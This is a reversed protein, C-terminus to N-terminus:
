YQSSLAALPYSPKEIEQDPDRAIERSLQSGLGRRTARKGPLRDQCMKAPKDAPFPRRLRPRSIHQVEEHRPKQQFPDHACQFARSGVRRRAGVVPQDRAQQALRSHSGDFVRVEGNGWSRRRRASSLGAERVARSDAPVCLSGEGLALVPTSEGGAGLVAKQPQRGRDFLWSRM